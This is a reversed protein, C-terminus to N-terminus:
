PAMPRDRQHDVICFFGFPEPQDNRLQHVELADVYAVDLSKLSTAEDGKILVGEGRVGIITHTHLHKELSTFGQPALEFYRLDFATREGAQGILEVRKVGDFPLADDGKYSTASRGQWSFDEQFAMHALIAQTELASPVECSSVAEKAPEKLDEDFIERLANLFTETSKALDDSHNLLAGGILCVTDVGYTEGISSLKDFQMGGAPASLAPKLDGLPAALHDHISLCDERSLSFRGGFNPFVSIDAGLLRFLKGLFMGPAFGIDRNVYFSGSFTPHAMIAIPYTEAIYRVTDLGVALPSILVGQVGIQLLYEVQRNIEHVPAMLSPFYLCNRGTSTNAREVAAHCLMTRACFDDHTTDVINHDDKVIDGGGQAFSGAMAAFEEPSAGRPKLATALLPRGYVGLIERLGETGYRPGQFTALLKKPLDVDVLAVGPKISINGFLLNLLQPMQGCALAANYVLTVHFIDSEDAVPEIAAVKAVIEERIYESTILAEPVEVTQELAMDRATQDVTDATCRVRYVATIQEDMPNLM